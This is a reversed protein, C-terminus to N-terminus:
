RTTLGNRSTRASRVIVAKLLCARLPERHEIVNTCGLKVGKILDFYNEVIEDLERLENASLNASGLVSNVQLGGDIQQVESKAVGKFHWEGSRLNTVIGMGKWFETGLILEHRVEPVVYADFVKTKGEVELKTQLPITTCKTQM